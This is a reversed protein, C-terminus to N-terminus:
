VAKIKKIKEGEEEEGVGSAKNEGGELGSMQWLPERSTFLRRTQVVAEQPLFDHRQQNPESGGGVVCM